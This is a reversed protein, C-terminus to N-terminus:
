FLGPGDEDSTDEKEYEREKLEMALNIYPRYAKLGNRLMVVPVARISAQEFLENFPIVTKIFLREPIFSKMEERIKMELVSNPHVMTLVVGELTLSPHGNKKIWNVLKLFHPLTKLSLSRAQVMLLVGDSARLLANVIGGVGAPTDIITYDFGQALTHILTTLQGQRAENELFVVKEPDMRGVGAIAIAKDKTLMVIDEPGCEGKMVDVLGLETRRKLNSAIAMGGQPDGDIILVKSGLHRMSFGLNLATTTKGVGGKQSAVALIKAM